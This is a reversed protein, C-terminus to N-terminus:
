GQPSPAAKARRAAALSWLETVALGVLSGLLVAGVREAARLVEFHPGGLMLIATCAAASRANEGLRVLHCVLVAIGMALAATWASVGLLLAVALGAAAGIGNAGTRGFGALRSEMRDPRIVLPASVAGWVMMHPAIWRLLLTAALGAIVTQIAQVLPWRALTM